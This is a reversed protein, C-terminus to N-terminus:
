IQNLTKKEYSLKPYCCQWEAKLMRLILLIRVCNNEKNISLFDTNLSYDKFIIENLIM